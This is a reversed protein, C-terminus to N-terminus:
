RCRLRQHFGEALIMKTATHNWVPILRENPRIFTPQRHIACLCLIRVLPYRRYRLTSNHWCFHRCFHWCRRKSQTKGSENTLLSQISPSKVFCGPDISSISPFALKRGGQTAFPGEGTPSVLTM